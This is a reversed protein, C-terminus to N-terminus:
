SVWFVCFLLARRKGGKGKGKGGKGKGDKGKGDRRDGKGRGACLLCSIVGLDDEAGKGKGKGGGKRHGDRQHVEGDPLLLGHTKCLEIGKTRRNQPYVSHGSCFAGAGTSDGCWESRSRHRNGASEQGSMKPHGVSFFFALEWTVWSSALVIPEDAPM